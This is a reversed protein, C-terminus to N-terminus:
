FNVKWVHFVFLTCYMCFVICELSSGVYIHMCVVSFCFFPQNGTLEIVEYFIEETISFDLEIISRFVFTIKLCCIPVLNNTRKMYEHLKTVMTVFWKHAFIRSMRQEYKEVRWLERMKKIEKTATTFLIDKNEKRVEAEELEEPITNELNLSDTETSDCMFLELQETINAGREFNKTINIRQALERSHQEKSNFDMWHHLLREGNARASQIARANRETLEDAKEVAQATLIVAYGM